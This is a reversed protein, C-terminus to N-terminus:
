SPQPETSVDERARRAEEIHAVLVRSELWDVLAQEAPLLPSDSERAIRGIRQIAGELRVIAKSFREPTPQSGTTESLMRNVTGMSKGIIAAIAPRAPREGRKPKGRRDTFGAEVLRGYLRRIEARTYDRRQTNEATEIALAREPDAESEFDIRRVPISVTSESIEAHESSEIDRLREILEASIEARADDRSLEILRDARTEPPIALLQCAAWRHAGALLCGRADIVVPELLGLAAISEALSVIHAPKLKRADGGGRPRIRSLPFMSEHGVHRGAEREVDKRVLDAASRRTRDSIANLDLRKAM